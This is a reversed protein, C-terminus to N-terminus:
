EEMFYGCDNEVEWDINKNIIERIKESMSYKKIDEYVPIHNEGNIFRLYYKNRLKKMITERYILMDEYKILEHNKVINRLNFLYRLKVKRLEFINYFRRFNSNVTEFNWDYLKERTDLGRAIALDCYSWPNLLEYNPPDDYTIWENLLFAELTHLNRIPIHHPVNYFSLIWDYPNRTCCLYILNSLRLCRENAFGFWHKQAYEGDFSIDPFFSNMSNQM